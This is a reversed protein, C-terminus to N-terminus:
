IVRSYNRIIEEIDFSAAYKPIYTHHKAGLSVEHNDEPNLVWSGPLLPAFHNILKLQTDIENSIITLYAVLRSTHFHKISTESNVKQLCYWALNFSGRKIAMFTLCSLNFTRKTTPTRPLLKNLTKCTMRLICRELPEQRLFTEFVRWKICFKLFANEDRSSLEM